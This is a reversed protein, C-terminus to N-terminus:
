ICNFKFSIQDFKIIKNIVRKLLSYFSWYIKNLFNPMFKESIYM